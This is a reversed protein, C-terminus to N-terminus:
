LVKGNWLAVTYEEPAYPRFEPTLGEPGTASLHLGDTQRQIRLTIKGGPVPVEGYADNGTFEVPAILFRKWGPSLPQLGLKLAYFYWVPLASWGHCLSGAQEFDAEGIDTEWMTTSDGQVMKGFCNWLKEALHRRVDRGCEALAAYFYRMSSSSVPVYNGKLLNKVVKEKEGAPVCRCYLALVQTIEHIDDRHDYTKMCGREPDYWARFISNRLADAKIQLESDHATEAFLDLMELLYLNYLADPTGPLAGDGSIGSRWEYFNWLEKNDPTCYLGRKSQFRLLAHDIINRCIGELRGFLGTDGNFLVHECVEVVWSFSFICIPPGVRSPACLALFGDQRLGKGLLELSSAAFRHNDWLYNGYLIQNRSDYAYLAQERWPCDEYHEHMCLELTRVSNRCLAMLRVDDCSFDSVESLLPRRPLLGAAYIVADGKGAPLIHLELYRGGIRRPMIYDRKGTGAIYRDAFNRQDIACRVRCDALHEGFAIDVVTGVPFQWTFTELGVLEQGLDFTLFYGNYGHPLEQFVWPAAPAPAAYATSIKGKLVRHPPQFFLEDRSCCQAYSLDGQSRRLFGQNILKGPVVDGNVLPPVPREVPAPRFSAPVANQWEGSIDEFRADYGVVMGLQLTVCDLRDRLFAKECRCLWTEDSVIKESSTEIEAWLGPEGKIYTQSDIGCYYVLVDLTHVGQVVPIEAASFTKSDPYDSFQGRMIEVGDLYATFDTDASIRIQVTERSSSFNQKYRVFEHPLVEGNHWIWMASKKM